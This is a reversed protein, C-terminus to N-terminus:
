SFFMWVVSLLVCYVLYGFGFWMFSANIKGQTFAGEGRNGGLSVM